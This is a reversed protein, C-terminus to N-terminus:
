EPFNTKELIAQFRLDDRIPDFWPDVKINILADSKDLWDFAKEKDGLAIYVQAIYSPPVYTRKSKDLLFNLIDIAKDKHGAIGYTYALAWNTEASKVKRSLFEDIAKNYMRKQTYAKALWWKTNIHDPEFQLAILCAEIAEDYRRAYYFSRAVFLNLDESLPDLRQALRIENIAEEHRGLWSLLGSYNSHGEVSSPNLEIVKKLTKERETWDLNERFRIDSLISYAAGLTSDIELAKNIALKVNPLVDEYSSYGTTHYKLYADALGLYALAFSPDIELARKLYEISRLTTEKITSNDM